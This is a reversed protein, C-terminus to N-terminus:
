ATQRLDALELEVSEIEERLRFLYEELRLIYEEKTLFVRADQEESSSCGCNGGCACAHQSHDHESM